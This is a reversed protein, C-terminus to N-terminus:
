MSAARISFKVSSSSARTRSIPPEFHGGTRSWGEKEGEGRRKEHGHENSVDDKGKKQMPFQKV